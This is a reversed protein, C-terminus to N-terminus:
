NDYRDSGNLSSALGRGRSTKTGLTVFTAGVEQTRYRTEVLSELTV